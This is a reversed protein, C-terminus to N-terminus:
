YRINPRPPASMGSGLFYDVHHSQIYGKVTMDNRYAPNHALTYLRVDSPRDTTFILLQDYDANTVVVEERWDGWIDGIFCPYVGSGVGGFDSIRLLRSISNSPKPNNWDWKEFKGNNYFELLVDGDWWIGLHPWPAFETDQETLKNTAANYIGSFSFVEMGPFRPDIDGALGRGVDVDGDGGSHRWLVRGDRADYYYELLGSPNRQQIGYGQLGPRSPDMKAIHFRDGHVIGQAGLSYRVTGNGNLTFGIEHIEDIGDGDVDIIRTNHGDPYRGDPDIGRLWKWSMKVKNGSYTWASMILNFKKDASRNKMFAVLSPTQGNLYGVGFRAALPGDSIYDTQIQASARLSGTRGDLIAIFQHNNNSASFVKGDGFRVGNSIRVAVEARGDGDFDYVTVGDWNGVDITSSGPSIHNQNASNPGLDVDWLFKGDRRYAELKQPSTQRDIVFDYEGDGDLDGVWVFKIPGGRRIPIRVVPEVPKNAPLIFSGSAEKEKGDLVPRVYYTNPQALNANSDVYNTGRKLVERNLRTAKGSGVARYVNFGVDDPDLGLLRWSVLVNKSSSRVAVVGRGLNEMQRQAHATPLSIMTMAILLTVMTVSGFLNVFASRRM